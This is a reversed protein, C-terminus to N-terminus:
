CAGRSFFFCNRRSLRSTWPQTTSSLGTPIVEVDVVHAEGLRMIAGDGFDKAIQKSLDSLVPINMKGLGGKNRPTQIWAVHSHKSDVSCAMVEAGLAKFENVRDSFAIIETPCVPFASRPLSLPAYPGLRRSPPALSVSAGDLAAAAISDPANSTAECADARRARGTVVHARSVWAAGYVHACAGHAAWCHVGM